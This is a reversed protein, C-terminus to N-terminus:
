PKPSRPIFELKPILLQVLSRSEHKIECLSTEAAVIKYDSVLQSIMCLVKNSAVRSGPCRAGQGFPDRFIPHDFFEESSGKRQEVAEKL